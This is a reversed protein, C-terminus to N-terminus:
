DSWYDIFPIGTKVEIEDRIKKAENSSCKVRAFAVMRRRDQKSERPDKRLGATKPYHKLAIALVKEANEDSMHTTSLTYVYTGTKSNYPLLEIKPTVVPFVLPYADLISKAKNALHVHLHAAIPKKVKTVSDLIYGSNGSLAILDGKKVKQGSAVLIKSLHALTLSEGKDNTLLHYVGQTGTSPGIWISGDFPAYLKTGVPVAFDIGVHRRYPYGNPHGYPYDNLSVVSMGVDQRDYLKTMGNTMTSPDQFASVEAERKLIDTYMKKRM